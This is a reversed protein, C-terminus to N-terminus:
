FRKLCSSCFSSALLTLQLWCGMLCLFVRYQVCNNEWGRREYRGGADGFKDALALHGITYQNGTPVFLGFISLRNAMDM